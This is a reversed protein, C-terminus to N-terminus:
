DITATATFIVYAPSSGTSQLRDPDNFRAADRDVLFQQHLNFTAAPSPTALRGTANLDTLASPRHLSFDAEIAEILTPLSALAAEAAHIPGRLSLACDAGFARGQWRTEAEAPTALAAVSLALFRRRNM